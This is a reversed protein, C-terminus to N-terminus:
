VAAPVPKKEEVVVNGFPERRRGPAEDVADADGAAGDAPVTLVGLWVVLADLPEVEVDYGVWFTWANGVRFALFRGVDARRGPRHDFALAHVVAVEGLQREGGTVDVRDEAVADLHREHSFGLAADPVLGHGVAVHVDLGVVQGVVPELGVRLGVEVPDEDM